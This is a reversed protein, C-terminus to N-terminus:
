RKGKKAAKRKTATKAKAAAEKERRAKIKEAIRKKAASKDPKVVELKGGELRKKKNKVDEEKAQAVSSTSEKRLEALLQAKVDDVEDKPWEWRGKPDHRLKNKKSLSRLVGRAIRPDVSIESCIVKLTVANPNSNKPAASRKSAGTAPKNEEAAPATPEPARVPMKIPRLEADTLFIIIPLKYKPATGALITEIEYNTQVDAEAPKKLKATKGKIDELEFQGLYSKADKVDDFSRALKRWNPGRITGRIIVQIKDTMQREERKLEGPQDPQEAKAKAKATRGHKVPVLEKLKLKFAETGGDPMVYAYDGKIRTVVGTLKDDFKSAVHDRVSVNAM